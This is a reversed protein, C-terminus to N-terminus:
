HEALLRMFERPSFVPIKDALDLLHKDGSVLAARQSCALAILYDDGPDISLTRPTTQSGKVTTASQGVWQVVAAADAKGIHVADSPRRGETSVTFNEKEFV